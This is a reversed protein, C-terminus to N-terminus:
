AAKELRLAENMSVHHDRISMCVRLLHLEFMMDDAPFEQRIIKMLEDLKNQPINAEEAVKEYYFYRM